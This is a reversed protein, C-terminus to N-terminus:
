ILRNQKNLIHSDHLVLRSYHDQVEWEWYLILVFHCCTGKRISFTLVKGNGFLLFYCSIFYVRIHFSCKRMEDSNIKQQWSCHKTNSSPQEEGGDEDMHQLLHPLGHFLCCLQPHEGHLCVIRKSLQNQAHTPIFFIYM